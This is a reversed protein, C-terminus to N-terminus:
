LCSIEELETFHIQYYKKDDYKTHDHYQKIECFELISKLKDHKVIVIHNYSTSYIFYYVDMIKNWFNYSELDKLKIGVSDKCGKVEIFSAKHGILIYDPSNRILKPIKIFDRGEIGSNLQDTGYRFYTLNNGIAYEEFKDEALNCKIRDKFPQTHDMNFDWRM